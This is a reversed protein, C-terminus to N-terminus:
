SWRRVELVKVTMFLWFVTASAQYILDRLYLKGDTADIWMQVFSMARAVGRIAVTLSDNGRLLRDIFLFSILIMMGMFSLAAAIMQDRSLSSFFLGMAVFAAGSAALALWFGILPRFDFEQGGELRLALLFLWWPIWLILFFFWAGLFKSLVVLSDGVPATLLVEITGSRKEESFLRMTMLPISFMVAVVPLFAIVYSQVIPEEMPQQLEVRVLIQGLFLYYSVAAMMLFGIMVFYAVPSVFFATFERRTMAVLKNESWFALSIVIAILGVIMLIIGVPFLFPKPPALFWGANRLISPAFYRAVGFLGVLVGVVVGVRGWSQAARNAATPAANEQPKGLILIAALSILFFIAGLGIPVLYEWQSAPDARWDHFLNPVASIAISAVVSFAGIVGLAMALRRAFDDMSGACGLFLLSFLLGLGIAPTWRGAFWIPDVTKGSMSWLFQGMAGLIGAAVLLFGVVGLSYLAIGRMTPETEKRGYLALMFVGPLAPVLGISWPKGKLAMALGWGIGALILAGGFVGLVRRVLDDTETALHVYAMVLGVFVVLWGFPEGFLRPTEFWRNAVVFIVGVFIFCWGIVGVGRTITPEEGRMQSPATEALSPRNTTMKAKESDM